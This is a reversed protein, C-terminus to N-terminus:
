CHNENLLRCSRPIDNIQCFDTDLCSMYQLSMVLVFTRTYMFCYIVGENGALHEQYGGSVVNADKPLLVRVGQNDGGEENPASHPFSPVPDEICASYARIVLRKEKTRKKTAAQM